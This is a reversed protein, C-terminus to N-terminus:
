PVHLSEHETRCLVQRASQRNRTATARPCVPSGHKPLQTRQTSTCPSSFSSSAGCYFSLFYCQVQLRAPSSHCLRFIRLHLRDLDIDSPPAMILALKGSVPSPVLCTLTCRAHCCYLPLIVPVSLSFGVESVTACRLTRTCIDM